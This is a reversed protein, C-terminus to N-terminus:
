GSEKDRVRHLGVLNLPVFLLGLGARPVLMPGLIGGAYGSHETLRL